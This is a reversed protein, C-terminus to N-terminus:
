ADGLEQLFETAEHLEPDESKAKRAWLLARRAEGRQHAIRAQMLFAEARSMPGDVKSLTVARLAALAIDHEGLEWALHALESSVHGNNKDSELAAGLWQMELNRDGAARALRAMRHQLEALEPSRRRTHRGIAQELLQGCEAFYGAGLYADALLVTTRHDEPKTDVARQLMPLAAEADGVQEILVRGARRFLEFAREPDGCSEAEYALLRALQAHAGTQEYLIRLRELIRPDDPQAEFVRELGAQGREMQDAAECADALLLAADVQETGQVAGLLRECTDAVGAWDQRQIDIDRLRYLAEVDDEHGAVWSALADRAQDAASAAQLVAVLRLAHRREAADDSTAAATERGLTLAQVLEPAVTPADVTYATELEDIATQVQDQQLLIRARMITLRVWDEDRADGRGELATALQATAAELDGAQRMADVLEVLVEIRPDLAYANELVEVARAPDGLSELQLKAAERLWGAAAAPDSEARHAAQHALFEALPGFREEERYRAELRERLEADDPNGRVGAALAELAKDPDGEADWEAILQRALASAEEGESVALLRTRVEARERPDADDGLMRLYAEIIGRDDAVWDLARRYVDMADDKRVKELLEGLRLSLDRIQELDENDRAVDLQRELLAVLDEDYGSKEYLSALLDAAEKQDPEEELVAELVDVADFERGEIAMLFRAKTLRAENRLEPELLADVLLVVLDSLRGEDGRKTRVALLPRWLTADTPDDELLRSYVDDAVELDGGEAAATEALAVELERREMDDAATNVVRGLWDLAGRVDGAARRLDALARMAWRGAAPGEDSGEALEIAQQLLPEAREPLELQAALEAAEKLTALTADQRRARRELLRLVQADDGSDRAVEEYLRMAEDHDPRTATAAALADELSAHRPDADFAARATSVAASLSEEDQAGRLLVDALQHLADARPAGVVSEDAVLAELVRRQLAADGLSRGVRALAFRADRVRVGLSEVEAYAKAADAPAERDVEAITGLALHIGARLAADEDRQHQELLEGLKRELAEVREVRRAATLAADRHTDNAPDKGISALRKEFAEEFREHQELVDAMAALMTAGSAPNDAAAARKELVQLALDAEAREGLLAALRTAEDDSQGAAELASQLLETGGEGDDSQAREIASLEYLVEAVGVSPHPKRRVMMLLGRYAKEARALQGAERALRGLTLLMKPEAMAMKTALELQELAKDFDGQARAVLGLQHHVHAREASRRRGFAEIVGSLITRAEDFEEAESLGEALQLKISRDDPALAMGKRLVPIADAPRGLKEAHLDAAERVLELVREEDTEHEAAEALVRALEAWEENARYREALRERLDQRGPAAQLTEELVQCAREDRGAAILTDALEVARDAREAEGAVALRRELWRAAAAYQERARLLRALADLSAIDTPRHEVVKRHAELAREEDDLPGECLKAVRAFLSGAREPDEIRSAQSEFLTALEEFGRRELLLSELTELSADHGPREELNARLAEMRGGTREIETVIRAVELRLTIRREPDEVAALERHRIALLEATRQDEELLDGLAQLAEANEGRALVDRYLDIAGGRDGLARLRHAADLKRTVVHETELPLAAIQLLVAIAEHAAEAADHMAVIANGAFLAPEHAADDGRRWAISARDFLTQLVEARLDEPALRAAEDLAVLDSADRGAIAWLTPFLDAEERMREIKLLRQLHGPPAHPAFAAKRLVAEVDESPEDCLAVLEDAYDERLPDADLAAIMAALAGARDDLRGQRIGGERARLHGRRAGGTAEAAAAFADATKEWAGTTEALRSLEGEIAEDEPTECLARGVLALAPETAESQREEIEAAQMLLRARASASGAAALRLDLLAVLPEWEGTQEYSTALASVAKERITPDEHECLHALGARAAAHDPFAELARRYSKLAGAPDDQYRARIDGERARLEAVHPEERAAARGIVDAMEDHRGTREYLSVLADTTEADEGYAAAVENWTAIADADRELNEALVRAIRALDARKRHASTTVDMRRRLAAILADHRAEAALLEVVDDHADEDSPDAELRRELLALADDPRGLTRALRAARGLADRRRSETEELAALRDLAALLEEHREAAELQACWQRAAPLAFERPVGESTLYGFQPIASAAEGLEALLEAAELRLAAGHAPTEGADAAAVLYDVVRRRQDAKTGAARLGELAEDDEVDLALIAGFHEMAAADDGAEALRQAAERHLTIREETGALELATGLTAILASPRGEADYRARLTDLASRRADPDLSEDRAFAELMELIPGHDAKPDDLLRQLVEIAEPVRGLPSALTRAILLELERKKNGKRHALQGRWLAVLDAHREQKELLRELSQALTKDKPRLALLQQLYGIARDPDSAFDKATQAAEELLSVKRDEEAARDIEQDYLSLLESWREAVSFLVSLRQFAWESATPDVRLVRQLVEVLQPSDEGFWEEHFQVARQALPSAVDESLSGALVERYLAGVDDPHQSAAAFDELADWAEDNGPDSRVLAASETFGEDGSDVPTGHEESDM